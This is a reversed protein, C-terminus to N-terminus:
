PSERLLQDVTSGLVAEMVPGAGDGGMLILDCGNEAATRLISNGVSETDKQKM